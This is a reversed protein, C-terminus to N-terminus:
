KLEDIAEHSELGRLDYRGLLLNNVWCCFPTDDTILAYVKNEVAVRAIKLDERNSKEFTKKFDREINEPLPEADKGKIICYQPNYLMGRIRNIMILDGKSSREKIRKYYRKWLFKDCVIKHCREYIIEVLRACTKDSNGNKDKLEIANCIINEDLVLKHLM